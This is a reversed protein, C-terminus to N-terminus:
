IPIDGTDIERRVDTRGQLRARTVLDVIQAATCAFREGDDDIPEFGCQEAAEIMFFQEETMTM